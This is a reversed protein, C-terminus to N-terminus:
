RARHGSDWKSVDAGKVLRRRHHVSLAGGTRAFVQPSTEASRDAMREEAGASSSWSERGLSARWSRRTVRRTRRISSWDLFSGSRVRVTPRTSWGSLLACRGRRRSSTLIAGTIPVLLGLIGFGNRTCGSCACRAGTTAESPSDEFAERRCSRDRVPSLAGDRDASPHRDDVRSGPAGDGSRSGVGRRTAIPGTSTASSDGCPRSRM